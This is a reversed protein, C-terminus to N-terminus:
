IGCTAPRPSAANLATAQGAVSNRIEWAITWSRRNLYWNSVTRIETTDYQSRGIAHGDPRSSVCNAHLQRRNRQKEQPSQRECSATVGTQHYYDSVKRDGQKYLWSPEQCSSKIANDGGDGYRRRVPQKLSQSARVANARSSIWLGVRRSAIFWKQKNSCLYPFWFHLPRPLCCFSSFSSSFTPCKPTILNRKPDWWMWFASNM